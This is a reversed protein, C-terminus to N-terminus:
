QEKAYIERMNLDGAYIQIKNHIIRDIIADAHIGGGLSHIDIFKKVVHCKSLKGGHCHIVKGNTM